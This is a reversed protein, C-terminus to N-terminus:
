AVKKERRVNRAKREARFKKGQARFSKWSGIKIKARAAVNAKAM